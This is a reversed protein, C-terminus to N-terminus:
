KCVAHVEPGYGDDVIVEQCSKNKKTCNEVVQIKEPNVPSSVNNGVCFTHIVPGNDIDIDNDWAVAGVSFSSMAFIILLVKIM